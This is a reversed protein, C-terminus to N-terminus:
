SECILRRLDEVFARFDESPFSNRGMNAFMTCLVVNGRTYGKSGDLKDISPRQPQRVITSPVMPIGLWHCLGRQKEWLSEIYTADIDCPYRRRRADNTCTRALYRPWNSVRNSATINNSARERNMASWAITRALRYDHFAKDTKLRHQQRISATHKACAGGGKAIRFCDPVYCVIPLRRRAYRKAAWAHRYHQQCMGRCVVARGCGSVTCERM